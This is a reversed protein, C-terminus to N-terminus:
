EIIGGGIMEEGDYFVIAQGPTVARQPRDFTVYLYDPVGVGESQPVFEASLDGGRVLPPNPPTLTLICSEEKQRYRIRAKCSFPFEPLHFWNCEIATLEKRFLAPHFNSSVILEKTDLHKEVVYFPEGGGVELGHRQGITYYALGKHRGVIKGDITVINGPEEPIREKLFEQINVDGIFCIGTSDKKAAVHLHREEAIRRVEPKPLDGIPFLIRPLLSPNIAYLFYSQDKNPDKGMLIKQHEPDSRDIRVYHGTAVFECGLKDAEKVFLDFKIFKNCMVDPNPTRGAAYEKFLYEVVDRRYETEFDFTLFPIGLDAAVRMADRREERWGCEEFEQGIREPDACSPGEVTGSWNKMFAGIVEYGQELLLVASVSSDVGGSMGLLVKPKSSHTPLESQELHKLQETKKM